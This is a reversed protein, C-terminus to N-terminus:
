RILIFRLYIRVLKVFQEFVRERDACAEIVPALIPIVDLMRTYLEKEQTTFGSHFIIYCSLSIINRMTGTPKLRSNM